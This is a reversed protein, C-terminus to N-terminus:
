REREERKGTWYGETAEETGDIIIANPTQNYYILDISPTKLQVDLAKTWGKERRQEKGAREM